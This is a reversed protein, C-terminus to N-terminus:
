VRGLCCRALGRYAENEAPWYALSRLYWSLALPRDSRAAEWAAWAWARALARRAVSLPVQQGRPSQLAQRLVRLRGEQMLRANRSLSGGHIRYRTLPEACLAIQGGMGCHRLYLDWDENGRMAPDFGGLAEFRHRKIIVSSITLCNGLLLPEFVDGQYLSMSQSLREPLGQREGFNWRDTYGLEATGIQALQRSLKAPLWEDDADLFALWTGRAMAAGRNRALGIGANAQRIVRIQAGFAALKAPTQDVSGDDVVIVEVAVGTQALASEIAQSIFPAANYAPIIVSVLM